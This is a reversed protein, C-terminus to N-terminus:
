RWQDTFGDGRERYPLGSVVSQVSPSKPPGLCWGMFRSASNRLPRRHDVLNEILETNVLATDHSM